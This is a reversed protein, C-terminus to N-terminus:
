EYMENWIGVIKHMDKAAAWKNRVEKTNTLQVDFREGTYYDNMLRYMAEIGAKESAYTCYGNKQKCNEYTKIGAPNRNELWVKSNADRGVEQVFTAAAFGPDINYIISYGLFYKELHAMAPQKRIWESFYDTPTPSEEFSIDTYISPKYVVQTSKNRVLLNISDLQSKLKYVEETQFMHQYEIKSREEAAFVRLSMTAALALTSKILLKTVKRMNHEEGKCM